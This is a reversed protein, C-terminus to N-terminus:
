KINLFVYFSEGLEEMPKYSPISCLSKQASACDRVEEEGSADYIFIPDSDSDNSYEYVITADLESDNTSDAERTGSIIYFFM